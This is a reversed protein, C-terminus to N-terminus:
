SILRWNFFGGFVIAYKRGDTVLTPNPKTEGPIGTRM